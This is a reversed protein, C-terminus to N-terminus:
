VIINRKLAVALPEGLSGICDLGALETQKRVSSGAGNLISGLTRRSRVPRSAFKTSDSLTIYQRKFINTDPQGVDPQGLVGGM